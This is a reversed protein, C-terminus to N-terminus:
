VFAGMQVHFVADLRELLQDDDLYTYEQPTFASWTYAGEAPRWGHPITTRFAAGPRALMWGHMAPTIPVTVIDSYGDIWLAVTGRGIDVGEVRGSVVTDAKDIEPQRDLTTMRGSDWAAILRLRDLTEGDLDYARTLIADILRQAWRSPSPGTTVRAEQVRIAHTLMRCERTGLSAPFPLEKLTDSPIKPNRLHEVIWANSVVWGLVAAMVELTISRARAEATPAVVYFSDSVVYGRREIALKVRMGWSANPDSVIIVKPSELVDRHQLRPNELADPYMITRAREYAIAFPAPLSDGGTLWNVRRSPVSPNHKRKRPDGRGCGVFVVAQQDLRATREAISAWAAASLILPHDMAHAKSGRARPPRSTPRAGGWVSQDPLITSATFPPPQSAKFADLAAGRQVVRTRVPATSLGRVQDAAKKRAFIAIANAKPGEFVEDPLQWTEVVECTELLERRLAPASQAVMFSQPMLMALYGGPALRDIARELFVDAQQHRKGRVEPRKRNGGFPPNGVIIHPRNCNLWRWEHADGDDVDWSDESTSVLLALRALLAAFPDRDNGHLSQRITQSPIDSLRALREYGSILFSGWGCTMDAVHRQEPQYYEVPITDWMRRTLYLPTDFRGWEKAQEKSFAARYLATLMDTTFSAFSIRKLEQYAAEAANAYQEFLSTHFYSRFRDVAARLLRDLSADPRRADDGLVGTDGLIIAGLLRVAMESAEAETIRAGTGADTAGRVINVAAGFHQVLADRSVDAAWLSLQFPNMGKFIPHVFRDRNLKVDIIRRPTLDSAYARLVGDLEDYAIDSRIPVLKVQKDLGITSGIFSFRDQHHILHFPAASHALVKVLVDDDFGMVDNYVTFGAYQAATRHVADAFIIAHTRAHRGGEVPFAYDRVIARADFGRNVVSDRAATDARDPLPVPPRGFDPAPTVGQMM